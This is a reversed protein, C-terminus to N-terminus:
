ASSSYLSSSSSYSKPSRIARWRQGFPPAAHPPAGAYGYSRLKQQASPGLKIWGSLSRANRIHPGQCLSPSLACRAQSSAIFSAIAIFDAIVTKNNAVPRRDRRERAPRMGRRRRLQQILGDHQRPRRGTRRPAVSAATDVKDQIMLHRGVDARLAALKRAVDPTIATGRLKVRGREIRGAHLQSQRRSCIAVV